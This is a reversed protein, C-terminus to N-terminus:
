LRLSPWCRSSSSSWAAATAMGPMSGASSSAEVVTRESASVAAGARAAVASVPLLLIMWASPSSRRAASRGGGRGPSVMSGPSHVRASSEEVVLSGAPDSPESPLPASPGWSRGSSCVTAAASPRPVTTRSAILRASGSRGAVRIPPLPAGSEWTKERLSRQDARPTATAATARTIAETRVVPSLAIWEM